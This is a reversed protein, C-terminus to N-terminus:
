RLREVSPFIHIIHDSLLHRTPLGMLDDCLQIAVKWEEETMCGKREEDGVFCCLVLKADIGHQRLFRLHALRNAHQYFPGNWLIKPKAHLAVATEALTREILVVSEPSKAQSPGSMMEPVHAKAEVLLVSKETLALADWNPGKSPWYSRLADTLHACNIKELFAGDVYEAYDDGVVPSVWRIEGVTPSQAAIQEYLFESHNNVAKQIWKLSGSVGKQKIVRM